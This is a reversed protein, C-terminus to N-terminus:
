SKCSNFISIMSCALIKSIIGTKPPTKNIWKSILKFHEDNILVSKNIGIQESSEVNLLAFCCSDTVEDVSSPTSGTLDVSELLFKSLHFFPWGSILENILPDWGLAVPNWSQ